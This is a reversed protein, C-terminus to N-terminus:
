RKSAKWNLNPSLSFIKFANEWKLNRKMVCDKWLRKLVINEGLRITQIILEAMILHHYRYLHGFCAIQHPDTKLVRLRSFFHKGFLRELLPLCYVASRLGSDGLFRMQLWIALGILRVLSHAMLYHKQSPCWLLTLLIRCVCLLLFLTVVFRMSITLKAFHASWSGCCVLMDMAHRLTYLLTAM